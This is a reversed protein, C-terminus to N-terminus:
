LKEADFNGNERRRRMYRRLQFLRDPAQEPKRGDLMPTVRGCWNTGAPGLHLCTFPPRKKMHEPWLKQFFSDAGGAHKWNTEHWPAAPLHSDSAHFIQTYGAWEVQQPHLPYQPWYPEHPIFQPIPDCMRRLPTYLYGPRLTNVTREPGEFPLECPNFSWDIYKPWLVDADMICIWGYRGMFDLGEEMAAFKNFNAGGTYFANTQYYNAKNARAVRVTEPDSFSTVICVDCFHHRNYRLTIELLDAYDVCVIIARLPTM